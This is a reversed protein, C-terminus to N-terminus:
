VKPTSFSTFCSQWQCSCNGVEATTRPSENLQMQNGPSGWHSRPLSDVQWHLLSLNSGQTLIIGQFLAHCGVGTNEGTYDWLCLLRASWLGGDMPTVPDSVVSCVCVCVCVTEWASNEQFMLCVEVKVAMLNRAGGTGRWYQGHPKCTLSVCLGLRQPWLM